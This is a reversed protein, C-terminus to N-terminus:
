SLGLWLRLATTLKAIDSPALQGITHQVLRQEITYIGRKIASPVNLGSTQWEALVFEGPLLGVLRSTIPVILLDNSPYSTNVIVAPRVKSSSLNSFPYRVLIIEYQSYNPM